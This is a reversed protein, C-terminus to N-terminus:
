EAEPDFEESAAIEWTAMIGNAVTSRLPAPVRYKGAEDLELFGLGSLDELSNRARGLMAVMMMNGPLAADLGALGDALHAYEEHGGFIAFVLLDLSLDMVAALPGDGTTGSRMMLHHIILYFVAIKRALDTAEPDSATAILEAAPGPRVHGSRIEIVQSLSLARWWATLRPVDEMSMAQITDDDISRESRRAVGVASVGLLAAAEAIDSRRLNGIQTVPRGKGIWSLLEPVKAIITLRGIAESQAEPATQDGEIIADLIAPFPDGQSSEDETLDEITAEIEDHARVWAELDRNGNLKFHVYSDLLFFPDLDYDDETFEELLIGLYELVDDPLHPDLGLSRFELMLHELEAVESLTTETLADTASLWAKFAKCTRKDSSTLRARTKTRVPAMPRVRPETSDILLTAAVATISTGAQQAVAALYSAVALATGELVAKGAHTLILSDLSGFANGNRAHKLIDRAAARGTGAAPLLLVTQVRGTSLWRDLLGLGAGIVHAVSPNRKTPDPGIADLVAKAQTQQGADLAISFRELVAYSRDLDRGVPTFLELNYREMARALADNLQDLSFNPDNFNIGEAALLPAIEALMEDALGPRHEIGSAALMAKIEDDPIPDSM